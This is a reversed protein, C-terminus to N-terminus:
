PTWDQLAKLAVSQGAVQLVISQQEISTLWVGPAIESGERYERGNLVVVRKAPTPPSFM